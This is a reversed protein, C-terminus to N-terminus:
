MDVRTLIRFLVLVILRALGLLADHAFVLGLKSDHALALLDQTRRSVRGPAKPKLFRNQAIGHGNDLRPMMRLACPFFGAEIVFLDQLLIKFFRFIDM